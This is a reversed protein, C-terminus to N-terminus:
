PYIVRIIRRSDSKEILIDPTLSHSIIIDLNPIDSFAMHKEATDLTKGGRLHRECLAHIMEERPANLFITLDFLPRFSNWDPIDLLLYNGEILVLRHTLSLEGSAPIPEHRNRNYVPYAPSEGGRVCRIFHRASVIDYTEPAGKVQRLTVLKENRLTTHSDLYDNPFHWGDLGVCAALEQHRIANLVATLLLTFASKGSAPPGAIGVMYRSQKGLRHLLFDALPLYFRKFEVPDIELPTNTGDLYLAPLIIPDLAAKDQM